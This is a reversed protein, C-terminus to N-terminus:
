LKEVRVASQKYNPERSKPDFAPMTLFNACAEQFHFPIFIQGKPVTQTIHVIIKEIKGRASVVRVEEGDHIEYYAATQPNLEAWASPSLTQLIPIRGTKTRTHWHEVTRGTNLLLPYSNSTQEPLDLPETYVLKAKGDATQFNGAQYLSDSQEPKGPFYPWQVPTQELVAYTLQHIDNLRGRSIERMEVFADEPKSWGPFLKEKVGLTNALDLFIQFDTRANGPADTGKKVRSIRRESNIYCGDKEGWMAAPLVLDAMDSTPTPFGDQVVLFDLKSLAEITRQTDPFSVLPNTAVVWLARIKGCLIDNIIDPYAKGRHDSVEEPLVNWIAALEQKEKENGFTRYGPMSATFAYERSGMANCQGTISMPAAGSRGINGTVLALNNIASVKDTGQISHNIGMTWAFFINKSSVIWELTKVVSEKALGTKECIMDLTYKEVNKKLEAFGCTHNNIYNEDIKGQQILLNVLGNFLYLDSGPALPLFLDAFMSTKSKRPDVVVLKRNKNKSLRYWLIPHNDAFNAGILFVLDAKELGLYSGPPGDSGFSQKYGAVASSMCLTTNGDYNDTKFGMRVLKGLAYFEETVLQGTSIVAFSDKGFQKQINAVKSAFVSYANEWGTKVFDGESTKLQPDTLRDAAELYQHESLGKPCLKGENVPHEKDGRVAVVKNNSIGLLMGCGVACYGCTTKVWQQPIKKQSTYGFAADKAYSYEKEKIDIGSIKKLLEIM